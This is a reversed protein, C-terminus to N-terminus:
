RVTLGKSGVVARPYASEVDLHWDAIYIHVQKAM